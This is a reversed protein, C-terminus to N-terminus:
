AAIPQFDYACGEPATIADSLGPTYLLRGDATILILEFGGHARWFSVAEQEGMVYLATSYADAATGDDSIVTVSLLDSDAPRGTRPDLIHQYVWSTLVSAARSRFSVGPPAGASRRTVISVSLLDSQVPYGTAPDIIHQYVTGDAAEFYRQYGGSTVAFCDTLAVTAAYGSAAPDQIGVNWVSGDPKSGCVYVNGGLSVVASTVDYARFIDAVQQSAYGKAIGGLDVACGEDLTVGGDMHVHEGGVLPLLADIEEQAPVHPADSTIGWLAVLPAVTMDFTGGTEDALALARTLLERTEQQVAVTEGANLRSIDSTDITRSLIAELRNIERSAATLAEDASDGYAALTMYTDMAFLSIAQPKKAGCAALALATLCALLLCALRKM